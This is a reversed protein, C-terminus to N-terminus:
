QSDRILHCRPEEGKSCQPLCRHGELLCRVVEMFTMLPFPKVLYAEIRLDRAREQWHVLEEGTTLLIPPRSGLLGIEELLDLGSCDPLDLDTVIMDYSTARMARRAQDCTAAASTEFGQSQLCRTLAKGLCLNDDIILIRKATTEEDTM